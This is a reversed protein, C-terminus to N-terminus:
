HARNMLLSRIALKALSDARLNYKDERARVKEFGLNKFQGILTKLERILAQNAKPDMTGTLVGIAYQSETFVRTPISKNSIANLGLQIAKLEAVNNTTPGCLYCSLEKCHQKYLLVVGCGGPGPNGSCAGDTYIHIQTTHEM